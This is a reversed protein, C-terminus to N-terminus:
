KDGKSGNQPSNPLWCNQLKKEWDKVKEPDNKPHVTDPAVKRWGHRALINYVSQKAIKHGVKESIDAAIRAACVLEGKEASSAWKALIETEEAESLLEHRRGGRRDKINMNEQQCRKAFSRKLNVVSARCKGLVDAINELALGLKGALVIAISEQAVIDMHSVIAEARELVDTPITYKRSM